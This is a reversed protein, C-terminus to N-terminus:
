AGPRTTQSLLTVFLRELTAECVRVARALAVLDPITGPRKVLHTALRFPRLAGDDNMIGELPPLDTAADDLVVRACAWPIGRQGAVAAVVATEMDVTLACSQERALRKAVATAFPKPNTLARGTEVMMGTSRAAEILLRTSAPEARCCNEESDGVLLVSAAVVVSGVSLESALAGCCGTNILTSVRFRELVTRTSEAARDPGIGSRYVLVRSGSAAASGQWIPVPGRALRTVQRLARLVPRVEWQLAAGIALM